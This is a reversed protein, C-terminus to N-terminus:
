LTVDCNRDGEDNWKAVEPRSAIRQLQGELRGILVAILVHTSIGSSQKRPTMGTLDDSLYIVCAIETLEANEEDM